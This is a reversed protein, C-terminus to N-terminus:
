AMLGSHMADADRLGRTQGTRQEDATQGWGTLAILVIKEGGPQQRILRAADYGDIGPMGTDMVVVDSRSSGAQAVAAVGDYVTTVTFGDMGLLVELTDAADVNDDVVLSSGPSKLGAGTGPVALVQPAAAQADQQGGRFAVGRYKVM